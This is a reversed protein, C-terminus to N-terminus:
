IFSKKRLEKIDEITTKGKSELFDILRDVSTNIIQEKQMGIDHLLKGAYEFNGVDFAIHCDSGLVVMNGNDRALSAILSCNEKSGKRSPGFSSNNIEILVNNKKAAKVVKEEDIPFMPNGIHGVIDVNRNEMAKIIANTNEDRTGPDICIHHLSAIVIDLEKLDSDRMDLEGDYDMINAEVGRLVIVGDIIRPIVRQNKIHYLHPAGPMEPGHDTLAFLKIGKKAAERAIDHVTSYAHGSAITHCHVDLIFEKMM